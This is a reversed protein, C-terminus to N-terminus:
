TGKLTVFIILCFLVTYGIKFPFYESPSKLQMRMEVGHWDAHAPQGEFILM